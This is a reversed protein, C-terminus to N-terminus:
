PSGPNYGPTVRTRLLSWLAFGAAPCAAVIAFALGYHHQDLLRGFSPMALAVVGSWAGSGLGSILSSSATSYVSTAYSVALMIFGGAAFTAVFLLALVGLSSSALPTLALPLGLVAAMAMIRWRRASGASEGTLARDIVYGWFFYGIEWGVPPIWLM